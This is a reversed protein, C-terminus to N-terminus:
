GRILVDILQEDTIGLDRLAQRKAADDLNTDNLIATVESVHIPGNTGIIANEVPPQCGLILGAASVALGALGLGLARRFQRLPRRVSYGSM